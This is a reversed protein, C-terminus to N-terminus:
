NAFGATIYNRLSEAEARHATSCWRSLDGISILGIVLGNDVVPLHRCHLNEFLEMAVEADMEKTLIPFDTRMVQHLPTTKPDRECTIVNRLVDRATFLGVLRGGDMVILSGINRRNMENVADLVSTTSPVTYLQTGKFELLTAITTNM